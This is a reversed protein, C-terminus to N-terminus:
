FFEAQIKLKLFVDGGKEEKRLMFSAQIEYMKSISTITLDRTKETSAKETM